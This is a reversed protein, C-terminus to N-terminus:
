AHFFPMAEYYSEQCSVPEIGLDEVARTIIHKSHRDFLRSSSHGADEARKGNHDRPHGKLTHCEWSM